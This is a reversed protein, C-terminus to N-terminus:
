QKGTLKEWNQKPRYLISGERCLPCDEPETAWVEKEVVAIVKRDGYESIPLKAPRHVLVGIFPLFNVPYPNGEIIAEQVNNLTQATTILEEIQLVTEKEYIVVRNWLMKKSRNPDKETFFSKTAGLARAVDHAFTIGAMPSGIVWDVKTNGIRERILLALQQALFDSLQQYKLVELCNFFGNSCKGSTLKAHPKKSDGNHMWYANCLDFIKLICKESFFKGSLRANNALGFLLDRLSQAKMIEKEYDRM